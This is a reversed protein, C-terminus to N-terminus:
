KARGAEWSQGSNWGKQLMCPEIITMRLQDVQQNQYFDPEVRVTQRRWQGYRDFVTVRDFGGRDYLVDPYTFRAKELCVEHDRRFWADM